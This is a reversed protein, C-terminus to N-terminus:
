RLNCHCVETETSASVRHLWKQELTDSEEEDKAVGIITKPAYVQHFGTVM